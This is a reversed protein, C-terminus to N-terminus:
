VMRGVIREDAIAAAHALLDEGVAQAIWPARAEVPRGIGQEDAIDASRRELLDIDALAAGVVAPRDGLARAGIRGEDVRNM